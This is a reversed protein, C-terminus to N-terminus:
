LAIKRKRFIFEFGKRSHEKGHMINTQCNEQFDVVKFKPNFYDIIQKPKYLISGINNGPDLIIQLGKEPRAPYKRHYGDEISALTLLFLAEESSYKLLESKYNIRAALNIIHKFCYTDIFFNYQTLPLECKEKIDIVKARVNSSLGLEGSKKNLTQVM